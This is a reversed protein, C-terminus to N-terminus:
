FYTLKLSNFYNKSNIYNKKTGIDIFTFNSKYVNINLSNNKFYFDEINILSYNLKCDLLNNNIISVGAYVYNFFSIKKESFKELLSDKNCYTVGFDKSFYKFSTLISINSSTEKNIYSNLNGKIYTDGNFIISSHNKLLPFANILAGATGLPTDENSFVFEFINNNRSNFNNLDLYILESLYGTCLIIRKIGLSYIQNILYYIFPYKGIKILSKPINDGSISSLRTGKGGCLIIAQGIKNYSNM